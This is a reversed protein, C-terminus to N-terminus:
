PWLYRRWADLRSVRAFVELEYLWVNHGPQTPDFPHQKSCRMSVRLRRTRFPMCEITVPASGFGLDNRSDPTLRHLQQNNEWTELLTRWGGDPGEAAVKMWRPVGEVFWPRVAFVVSPRDLNVTMTYDEDCSRGLELQGLTEGEKASVQHRQAVTLALKESRRPGDRMMCLNAEPRVGGCFDLVHLGVCMSRPGPFCYGHMWNHYQAAGDILERVNRACGNPAINAEISPLPEAGRNLAVNWADAPIPDPGWHEEYWRARHGKPPPLFAIFAAVAVLGPLAAWSWVLRPPELRSPKLDGLLAAVDPYRQAVDAETAREITRRIRRPPEPFLFLLMKGLAYVDARQDVPRGDRQEPAMYAATGGHSITPADATVSVSLGFDTVLPEGGRMLVNEPKLDLHLVGAEHAAHVAACVGAFITRRETASLRAVRGKLHGGEVFEMVILRVQGHRETHYVRCVGPHRVRHANAVEVSGAQPSADRCRVLKLAVTEDTETDLARFVVGQGGRGVQELIRYRSLILDGSALARGLMELFAALPDDATASSWASGSVDRSLDRLFQCESCDRVHADIGGALGSLGNEVIARQARLCTDDPAPDPAGASPPLPTM